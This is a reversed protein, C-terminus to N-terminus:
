VGWIIRLDTKNLRQKIIGMVDYAQMIKNLAEQMAESSAQKCEKFYGISAECHSSLVNSKLPTYQGISQCNIFGTNAKSELWFIITEGEKDQKIIIKEKTM